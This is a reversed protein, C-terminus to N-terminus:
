TPSIVLNILVSFDVFVSLGNASAVNVKSSKVRLVGMMDACVMNKNM